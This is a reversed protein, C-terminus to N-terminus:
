RESVARRWLNGRPSHLGRLAAARVDRSPDGRRQAVVASDGRTALREWAARISFQRTQRSLGALRAGPGEGAHSDRIWRRLGDADLDLSAALALDLRPALLPDVYADYLQDLLARQDPDIM